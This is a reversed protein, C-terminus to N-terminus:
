LRWCRLSPRPATIRQWRAFDKSPMTDSRGDQSEQAAEAFIPALPLEVGGAMYPANIALACALRLRLTPDPHALNKELLLGYDEPLLCALWLRDDGKATEIRKKLQGLARKAAGPFALGALGVAYSEDFFAKDLVADSPGAARPIRQLNRWVAVRVRCDPDALLPTLLEAAATAYATDGLAGLGAFQGIVGLADAALVRTHWAQDKLTAGLAPIARGGFAVVSRQVVGEDGVHRGDFARLIDPVAFVAAKVADVDRSDALKNLVEAAVLARDREALAQRLSGVVRPGLHVLATSAEDRVTPDSDKLAKILAVIAEDSEPAVRGVAFAAKCRVEEDEDHLARLLAPTAAQAAPGALGLAWVAYFRVVEHPDALAEKLAPVAAAGIEGLALATHVRVDEDPMALLRVLAPVAVKADLKAIAAVAATRTESDKAQLQKLLVDVEGLPEGQPDQRLTRYGVAALALLIVVVLILRKM